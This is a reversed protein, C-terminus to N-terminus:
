ATDEETISALQTELREALDHVAAKLEAAEGRAAATKTEIRSLTALERETLEM